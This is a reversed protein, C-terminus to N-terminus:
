RIYEESRVLAEGPMILGEYAEVEEGDILIEVAEVGSLGTLSDVLGYLTLVMGASGAQGEAFARNFSVTLVGNERLEASQLETGEPMIGYLGGGEVPGAILERVVAAAMAETTTDEAQVIRKDGVLYSADADSFYLMVEQEAPPAPTEATKGCGAALLLVALLFFATIGRMRNTKRM